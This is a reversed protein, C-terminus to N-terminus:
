AASFEQTRANAVQWCEHYSINRHATYSNVLLMGHLPSRLEHSISSIFDTKAQEAMQTDLRSVEAMVVDCFAALYNM